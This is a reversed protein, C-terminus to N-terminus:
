CPQQALLQQVSSGAKIWTALEPDIYGAVTILDQHRAPGDLAWIRHHHAIRNRFLRLRSVPESVVLQDRSPAHPFAGVLDPWFRMQKRSVLQHWLGFSTESIIQDRTPTKKNKQVRRRAIAIDKYPQADHGKGRVDRGLVGTPDDLWESEVGHTTYIQRMKLDLANRLAVELHGLDLWFSAALRANWRYLEVARVHDGGCHQVYLHLRSSGIHNEFRGWSLSLYIKEKWM